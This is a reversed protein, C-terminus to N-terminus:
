WYLLCKLVFTVTARHKGWHHCPKVLTYDECLLLLRRARSLYPYLSKPTVPQPGSAALSIVCFVQLFAFCHLTLSVTILSHIHFFLTDTQYLLVFRILPNIQTTKKLNSQKYLFSAQSKSVKVHM